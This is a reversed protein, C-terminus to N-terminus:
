LIIITDVKEVIRSEDSSPKSKTKFLKLTDYSSNANMLLASVQNFNESDSINEISQKRNDSDSKVPTSKHMLLPSDFNLEDGSAVGGSDESAKKSKEPISEDDKQDVLFYFYNVNYFSCSKKNFAFTQVRVKATM